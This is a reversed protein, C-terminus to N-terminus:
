IWLLSKQGLDSQVSISDLIHAFGFYFEIEHYKTDCHLRWM